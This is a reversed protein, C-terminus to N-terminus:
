YVDFKAMKYELINLWLKLFRVSVVYEHEKNRQSYEQAGTEEADGAREYDDDVFLTAKCIIQSSFKM